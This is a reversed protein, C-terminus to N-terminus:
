ARAEIHAKLAALRTEHGARLKDQGYILRVLPGDLSEQLTVRTRGNEPTLVMRDVARYLGLMSGTWSLERGPDVVAFRSRLPTGNQTWRFERGPEVADLARLKFGPAWTEWGRLGALVDWVRDPSADILVSSTNTVPAAEDIRGRLAYEDHLTALSPM